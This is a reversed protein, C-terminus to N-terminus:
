GRQGQGNSKLELLPNNGKLMAKASRREHFRPDKLSEIYHEYAELKTPNGAYLPSKEGV